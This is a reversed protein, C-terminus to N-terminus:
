EEEMNRLRLGEVWGDREGPERSSGRWWGANKGEGCGCKRGGVDVNEGGVGVNEGGVGVNGGGVGVNEGGVGVNEGEWVWMQGEVGVNEGGVDM